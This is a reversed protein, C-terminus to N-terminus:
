NVTEDEDDVDVDPTKDFVVLAQTLTLDNQVKDVPKEGVTDRIVEYAKTDGLKAKNILASTIVVNNKEGTKEDTMMLAMELLERMKKREQKKAASAQGAKRANERRQAPTLDENKILNQENAM